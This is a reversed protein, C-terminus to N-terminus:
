RILLDVRIEGIGLLNAIKVLLALQECIRQEAGIAPCRFACSEARTAPTHASRTKGGVRRFRIRSHNSGRYVYVYTCICVYIYICM